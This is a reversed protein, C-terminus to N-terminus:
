SPFYTNVSEYFFTGEFLNKQLEFSTLIFVKFTHELWYLVYGSLACFLSFSLRDLIQRWSPFFINVSEYFFTGEFLIEKFECFM